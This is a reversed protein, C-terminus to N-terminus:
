ATMDFIEILDYKEPNASSKNRSIIVAATTKERDITPFNTNSTILQKKDIM